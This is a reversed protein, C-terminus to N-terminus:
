LLVCECARSACMDEGDVTNSPIEGNLFMDTQPDAAPSFTMHVAQDMKPVKKKLRQQQRHIEMFLARYTVDFGVKEFARKVCISMAGHAEGKM